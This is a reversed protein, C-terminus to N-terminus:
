RRPPPHRSGSSTKWESRQQWYALPSKALETGGALRVTWSGCPMAIVIGCPIRRPAGEFHFEIKVRWGEGGPRLDGAAEELVNRDNEIRWRRRLADPKTGSRSGKFAIWSCFSRTRGGSFRGPSSRVFKKRGREFGSKKVREGRRHLFAMGPYAYSFFNLRDLRPRKEPPTRAVV